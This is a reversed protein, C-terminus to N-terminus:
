FRRRVRRYASYAFLLAIAAVILILLVIMAAGGLIAGLTKWFGIQAILIALLLIILIPM